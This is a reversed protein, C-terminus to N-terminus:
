RKAMDKSAALPMVALYVPTFDGDLNFWLQAQSSDVSMACVCWCAAYTPPPAIDQSLRSDPQVLVSSVSQLGEHLHVKADTGVGCM